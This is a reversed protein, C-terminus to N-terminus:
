ISLTQVALLVSFGAGLYSPLLGKLLSEWWGNVSTPIKLSPLSRNFKSVWSLILQLVETHPRLPLLGRAKPTSVLTGSHLWTLSFNNVAETKPSWSKLFGKARKTCSFCLRLKSTRVWFKPGVLLGTAMKRLLQDSSPWRAESSNDAVLSMSCSVSFNVSPCGVM